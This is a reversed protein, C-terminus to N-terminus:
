LGPLYISNQFTWKLIEVFVHYIRFTTKTVRSIAGDLISADMQIDCLFSVGFVSM